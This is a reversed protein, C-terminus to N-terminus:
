EGMPEVRFNDVLLRGLRFRDVCHLALRLPSLTVAVFKGLTTYLIGNVYVNETLGSVALQNSTANGLLSSEYTYPSLAIANESWSLLSVVLLLSFIQITTEGCSPCTERGGAIM